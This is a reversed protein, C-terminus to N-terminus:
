VNKHKWVERQLQCHLFHSAAGTIYDIAAAIPRTLIGAANASKHLKWILYFKRLKGEKVVNTADRISECVSKWGEGHKKFHILIGKLKLFVDDLIDEKTKEVKSYTGKDDELHLRCQERYLDKPYIVPGRNKLNDANSYGIESESMRALVSREARTINPWRFKAPLLKRVRTTTAVIDREINSLCQAFFPSRIQNGKWTGSGKLTCRFFNSVYSRCYVVSLSQQKPTWTQIGADRQARDRQAFYDKRV